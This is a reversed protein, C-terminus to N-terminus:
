IIEETQTVVESVTLARSESPTAQLAKKVKVISDESAKTEIKGISKADAEVAKPVSMALDESDNIDKVVDNAMNELPSGIKEGITGQQVFSDAAAETAEIRKVLQQAVEGIEKLASEAKKAAQEVIM